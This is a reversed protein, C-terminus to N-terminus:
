ISSLEQIFGEGAITQGTNGTVDWRAFMTGPPLEAAFEAIANNASTAQFLKFTKWNTNDGSVMLRAQAPTTPGTPGNTIKATALGGYAGTLNIATGTTTSGSSNTTNAAISTRLNKSVAM